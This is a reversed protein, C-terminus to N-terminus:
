ISVLDTSESIDPVDDSKEGKVITSNVEGSTSDSEASKKTNVDGNVIVSTEKPKDGYSIVELNSVEAVESRKEKSLTSFVRTRLNETSKPPRSLDSKLSSSIYKQPGASSLRFEDLDHTIFNSPKRSIKYSSSESSYSSTRSRSITDRLPRSISDRSQSRDRIEDTFSSSRASLGSRYFWFVSM